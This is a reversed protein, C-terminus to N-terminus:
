LRAKKDGDMKVGCNPCYKKPNTRHFFILDRCQSCRQATGGDRYTELVEWTGHRVPAVDAAPLKRLYDETDEPGCISGDKLGGWMGEITAEREIYEAM